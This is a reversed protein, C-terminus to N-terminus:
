DKFEEVADVKTPHFALYGAIARVAPYPDEYSWAANERVLGGAMVTYYTASGKYPSYATHDTRELLDMQVDERPVYQMPPLTAECLTLASTTEAVIFGGLVVRVRHPTPTITIPHDPGPEKM